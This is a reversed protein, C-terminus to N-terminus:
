SVERPPGVIAGFDKLSSRDGTRIQDHYMKARPLLQGIFRKAIIAKRKSREAAQLFLYGIMIDTAMDVLKRACLDTYELGGAKAREAASALWKRARELKGALGGLPREYKKEGLEAFRKEAVGSVVGGVAAVVQLQSTGEYINTIRADRFHREVPYDRMYGSGGLVQIADSAVKNCMETSYYKAMPTLLSALRKTTRLSSKLAKREAADTVRGSENRRHMGIELDVVRSGEYTLTRAAEITVRMETLLDAVAPIREIRKGFQRRTHAYARAENFAAQAIGLAQAAIGIRAGNMLAMGYILGRQREGVIRAPADNFQLECTPSGHIGLKDELRRVRVKDSRECLFISLGMGGERDPESRALVLLVEGCGNTIFRKVGNLLWIGNGTETAKLKVNQLDSGADPETLAMAGTIKGTCFRPLYKEKLDDAAFANVTEAIGQLGFINMLSADARSVMEIAMTYIVNPFNLGGYQRPLTFGMLDAKSLMELSEAIGKAYTVRGNELVNGERDVSQARPAIFDGALEGVISLVREYSDVADAVSEPTYPYEVNQSMGDEYYGVIETLDMSHLHFRIDENDKYFNAM